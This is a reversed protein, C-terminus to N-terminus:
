QKIRGPRFYELNDYFIAKENGYWYGPLGLVPLPSLDKPKQLAANGTKADIRARILGDVQHLKQQPTQQFYDASVNQLIANATIGVYPNFMKELLAHGFVICDVHQIVDERRQYFLTKWDFNHILELLSPDDSVV